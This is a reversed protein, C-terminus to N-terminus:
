PLSPIGFASNNMTNGAMAPSNSTLITTHNTIPHSTSNSKAPISMSSISRTTTVTNPIHIYAAGSGLGTIPKDTTGNISFALSDNTRGTTTTAITKNNGNSSSGNSESKTIKWIVGTNPYSWVTGHLSAFPYLGAGITGVVNHTRVDTKGISAIYLADGKLDFKVGM